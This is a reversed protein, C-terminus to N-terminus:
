LQSIERLADEIKQEREIYFKRKEDKRQSSLWEGLNKGDEKHDQPVNCHGERDKYAMLLKINEDWEYEFVDCVRGLEELQKEKVADLTGRKKENRQTNLWNGLNKGDKIHNYSFNFQGERDKYEVLLKINEDWEYELVDWVMGLEELQKEKVTDLTGRKKENRQTSLWEGLNKGDVKHFRPVNCHGVRGKYEILLNFIEDWGYEFALQIPFICQLDRITISEPPLNHDLKMLEVKCQRWEDELMTKLDLLKEKIHDHMRSKGISQMGVVVCSPVNKALDKEGELIEHAKDIANFYEHSTTSSLIQRRCENQKTVFYRLKNPSFPTKRIRSLM